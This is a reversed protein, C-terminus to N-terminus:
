YKNDGDGDGDDEDSDDEDEDSDDDTMLTNMMKIIKMMKMTKTVAM